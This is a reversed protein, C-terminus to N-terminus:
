CIIQQGYIFFLLILNGSIRSDVIRPKPLKSQGTRQYFEQIFMPVNKAPEWTTTSYGKWKIHYREGRKALIEEILFVGDLESDHQQGKKDKNLKALNEEQIQKHHMVPSAHDKHSSCFLKTGPYNPCGAAVFFAYDHKFLRVLGTVVSVGSGPFVKIGSSVAACLSRHAKLGGDGIICWGCGPKECHHESWNQGFKVKLLPLYHALSVDIDPNM